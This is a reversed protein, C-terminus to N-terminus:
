ASRAVVTAIGVLPAWCLVASAAILVVQLPLPWRERAGAESTVDWIPDDAAIPPEALLADFGEEALEDRSQETFASRLLAAAMDARGLPKLFNCGVSTGSQWVVEATRRGANPLEVDLRGPMTAAAPLEALFGTASVSTIAAPIEDDGGVCYLRVGLNVESRPRTRRDFGTEYQPHVLAAM